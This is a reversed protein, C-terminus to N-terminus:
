PPRPSPTPKPHLRAAARKLEIARLLSDRPLPVWGKQFAYGLIFINTAIADGMLAPALKGAPVFEVKKAGAADLIDAELRTGPLQWDPNKVFEATPSVTANVLVRTAKDNM